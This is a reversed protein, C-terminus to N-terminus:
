EVGPRAQALEALLDAETSAPPRREAPGAPRPADSGLHLAVARTSPYDWALTPAVPEGLWAELQVALAVADVSTLGYYSFPLTAEITESGPGLRAALRSLLWGEIEAVSRSM